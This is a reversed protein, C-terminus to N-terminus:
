PRAAARRPLIMLLILIMLLFLQLAIVSSLAMAGQNCPKAMRRQEGM